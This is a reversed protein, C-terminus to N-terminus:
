SLSEATHETAMIQYGLSFHTFGFTSLRFKNKHGGVSILASGALPLSYGAALYAKSLADYFSKWLLCSRWDFARWALVIDAGELQM